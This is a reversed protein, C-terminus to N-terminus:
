GGRERETNKGRRQEVLNHLPVVKITRRENNKLWVVSGRKLQSIVSVSSTQVYHHTGGRDRVLLYYIDRLEDHVGRQLVRGSVPNAIGDGPGYVRLRDLSPENLRNMSKIVDGHRGLERLRPVHYPSLRWRSGRVRQALGLSELHRLRNLIHKKNFGVTQQRALKAADVIRQKNMNRELLRDLYTLRSAQTDKQRAKLVEQRSREGLIQTALKQARDRIGYSIYDPAIVLDKGKEDRGRILVHAHPNDTNFHNVGVWQLRTGLDREVQTMLDRIYGKFDALDSANEPSIILRFHHRDGSWGSVEDKITVDDRDASYAKPKQNDQGAEERQLYAAHRRLVAQASKANRHRQVRAQVVM